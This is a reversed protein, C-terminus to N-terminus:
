RSLTLLEDLVERETRGDIEVSANALKRYLKDRQGMVAEIEDLASGSETISPRDTNDVKRLRNRLEEPSGRLYLIRVQRLRRLHRLLDSAGPATPTGGGLALVQDDGQNLALMLATVEAERFADQGHHKWADAVTRERLIMPTMDDLDVFPRRLADALARGLTSKGSGRLGILLLNCDPLTM